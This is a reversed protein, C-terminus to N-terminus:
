KLTVNGEGKTKPLNPEAATARTNPGPGPDDSGVGLKGSPSNSIVQLGVSDVVLRDKFLSSGIESIM